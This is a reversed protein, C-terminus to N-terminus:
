FLNGWRRELGVPPPTASANPPGAQGLAQKRVAAPGGAGTTTSRLRSLTRALADLRRNIRGAEAAIAAAAQRQADLEKALLAIQNREPLM